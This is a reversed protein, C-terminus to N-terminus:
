NSIGLSNTQFSFNSQGFYEYLNFSMEISLFISISAEIYCYHIQKNIAFQGSYHTIGNDQSFYTSHSVIPGTSREVIPGDM